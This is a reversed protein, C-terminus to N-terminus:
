AIASRRSSSAFLRHGVVYSRAVMEPAGYVHIVHTRVFPNLLINGTSVLRWQASVDIGCISVFKPEVSVTLASQVDRRFPSGAQVM